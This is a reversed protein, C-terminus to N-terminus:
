SEIIRLKENTIKKQTHIKESLVKNNHQMRHVLIRYIEEQLQHNYTARIMNANSYKGIAMPDDVTKNKVHVVLRSCFPNHSTLKQYFSIANLKKLLLKQNLVIRFLKHNLHFLCHDCSGLHNINFNFDTRNWLRICM